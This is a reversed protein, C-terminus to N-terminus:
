PTSGHIYCHFWEAKLLKFNLFKINGVHPRVGSHGKKITSLYNKNTIIYRHFM